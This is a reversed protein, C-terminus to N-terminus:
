KIIYAFCGILYVIGSLMSVSVDEGQRLGPTNRLENLTFDDYRKM